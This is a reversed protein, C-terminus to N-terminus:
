LSQLLKLFLLLPPPVIGLPVLLVFRIGHLLNEDVLRIRDIEFVLRGGEEVVFVMPVVPVLILKVVIKIRDLHSGGVGGEREQISGITTM